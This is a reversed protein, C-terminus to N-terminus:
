RVSIVGANSAVGNITIFVPRDGPDVGNPIRVNVQTDGVFGPALGAFVVEAPKGGIQASVQGNVMSLPSAPAGTGDPVPPTTPGQGTLYLVIIGGAPQATAATHVSLDQNLAAARGDPTIFLGAHVATLVVPYNQSSAKLSTNNVVIQATGVPQGSPMQFNVQTPSAYYLPVPVGNVTVSTPGLTQPLPLSPAQYVADSLVRGFITMLAGPAGGSHFSGANTVALIVPSQIAPGIALTVPVTIGSLGVETPTLSVSGQYVGATLAGTNVSVQLTDPTQGQAKGVQLWNSGSPSSVSTTVQYRILRGTSSISLLQALPAGQQLGLFSLSPPSVVLVPKATIQYVVFLSTQGTPTTFTVTATYSGPELGAPDVSINVSAPTAGAPPSVTLWPAAGVATWPEVRGDTNTIQVTQPAPAPQAAEGAFSIQSPLVALTGAARPLITLSFTAPAAVGEASATVSFNGSINNATLPPATALGNADTAVVPSGSFTGAPGASPVVFSVNVGAGPNGKSDTVRAQLLSPFLQSPTTSQPSGSIAVIGTAPGPSIQFPASVAPVNQGSIARLQKIGVLDISLDGFTATGTSDTAQVTTGSLTGNGSSLSLLVLIGPTPVPAGSNDVIRVTVAPSITQGAPANTPQQVFALSPLSTPLNSLVFQAQGTVPAATATVIYTGPISNATIPATAKGQQDTVVTVTTAGGFTGSAGALPALFVVPVGGVPNGASDNVTAQLAEPFAASVQTSQPTGGTAQIVSPINAAVTFPDSQASALGGAQAQATHAGAQSVSLGGFTALGTADTTATAPQARLTGASNIVLSVLLGGQAVPNGSSDRVQVTVPPTITQGAITATPQQVFGLRNATDALNTLNFTAPSPAGDTAAMVQFAGAQSNATLAPSTAIGQNDTTVSTSGAFAAGAGSAPATFTVSAGPVANGLLDRVVATLPLAYATNVIASQGGGDLITVTRSSAPTIQFSNSLMSLAGATAQLQFTGTTNISLNSFTALGNADTSVTTVGILMATNDPVTLTVSVGAIPNRNGDMLKVAVTMAAGAATNVPQQVFTLTTAGVVGVSFLNSLNFIASGAGALAAQVAYSGAIANATATISAHGSADTTASSTSLAASAGSSPATFTVTAGSIPNGSADKVTAQLPTAFATSIATTQPTGGTSQITSAPGATINFANSTASTIEAAEAALTYAGAQDISINAFTALGTADTMVSAAGRLTRFRTVLPSAQIAVAVGAMAVRNGFSDQLQVTVAPTIAQGAVTDTPQQVFALKNATGVVNTLNFTAPQTAGPTAATVQFTGPTGNATAVPAAAIGMANTPVTAPGAFTVSAGSAPENFTVSANSVPNGFADQVSARLPAAYATGVAATQGNGDFVTINAAAAPAIQFSDSVASLAGASARLTYTGTTRIVLDNFMATGTVDTAATVTGELMGSGGQASLTVTIGSVANNASDTLRVSVASITAGATTSAPQQVFALSAGAAAINTLAFAAAGSVGSAAATVTYGGAINNATATVIAHGAADSVALPASLTASAGAGPATFSVTVGSVPNGFGDAVTAQLPNAFATNITTSQPTGGTAQIAAAGGATITFQTSTASTVGSAEATLTYKGAQDLILTDFTAKGTADTSATATGRLARLRGVVPNSQISVSVGATAVANGFNDQLQVTVAPTIPQGATTDTPQQVFLLKNATGPVNTLNFTAPQTAGATAATVQFAGSTQNATAVPSAAIGSADTSVTASSAFTVSAGSAPVTFTVQANAIPNTFADVVSARLPAGYATGVAATQGNGDFVTINAAAAPTIQFTNSLASLAGAVAKLQYTGTTTIRLDNFTATGTADTTGTQTGELTGGGGQASLTVGVSNLPNGGSDTLKVSVASITAGATTSAPQQVFALIAAGAAVNILAFSATGSVGSLGATVTYGGAITNATATVSARGAADTTAQAASLTASAGSTPAMFTVSVGIVPNGSADRVVVALPDAFATSITASQPTGGATAISAPSGATITFPNSQASAFSTASSVLQYNGPQAVSLNAFTALGAANTNQTTTGSIARFQQTLPNAQITVAVNAMALSNGSGDKLQVTVPPAILLGSATNTPQQVFALRNNPGPANTLDFAASQSAGSTAAMVRVPGSQSNATLGPSTAVGSSDTIATATGSGDFTVSPGGSPATFVVSATAVLNGYVDKVTVKLPTAYATGVTATQSNGSLVEVIRSVAGTINFSNSLTTVSGATAKLQYTGTTTITLNSFRAQGNADSTATTTGTLSGAGGQATMTVTVGASQNGSGDTVRVTVANITSGAATNAPQTQFVIQAPGTGVNTLVFRAPPIGVVSANVEYQGAINNATATVNAQGDKDTVASIASLSASAGSVPASFAVTVNKVPRSHKDTVRVGLPLPFATSVATTQEAGLAAIIMTPQATPEIVRVVNFDRQAVYMLGGADIGVDIPSGIGADLSLEADNTYTASGNGAVTSIIGSTDIKRIRHNNLDTFYLNGASDFVMGTPGNLQAATAPGGDGSFSAVGIGAFTTIVGTTRDIRRITHSAVDSTYLNGAADAALAYPQKLTAGIAPGGDGSSGAKGTGAYTTIVGSPDIRRVKSNYADAIYLNGVSDRALGYPNNLQANTAQGGDGANGPTDNGAITTIIGNTAVKRVRNNGSDAIYLNGAPDFIIARPQNIQANVAQGNDGGFSAAGTGVVTTITGDSAVKRIRNNATDSIYLNGSSDVEVRGPTNLQANIAPGNDGSFGATGTGAFTSITGYSQARLPTAALLIVALSFACTRVLNGLRNGEM